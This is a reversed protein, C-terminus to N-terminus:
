RVEDQGRVRRLFAQRLRWSPLHRGIRRYLNSRFRRDAPIRYGLGEELTWTCPGCFGCPRGDRTPQNCFWTRELLDDFGAETAARQMAVKSVDLIPFQFTSLLLGDVAEVLETADKNHRNRQTWSIAKHAKDDVHVCLELRGGTESMSYQSLWMYQSGLRFQRNLPRFWAKVQEPVEIDSKERRKPLLIRDGFRRNARGRISEITEEEIEWSRRDRDRVYHPQIMGEHRALLDLVRFTSDWGGTWLIDITATRNRSM